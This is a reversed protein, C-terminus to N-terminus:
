IRKLLEKIGFTETIDQKCSLLAQSLRERQARSGFYVIIPAHQEIEKKVTCSDLQSMVTMVQLLRFLSSSAAQARHIVESEGSSQFEAEAAGAGAIPGPM